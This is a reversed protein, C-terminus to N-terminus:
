SSPPPTVPTMPPPPPMPVMKRKKRLVLGVLFIVIGLVLLATGVTGLATTVSVNANAPTSSSNSQTSVIGVIVTGGNPVSLTFTGSTGTQISVSSLGTLSASTCASLSSCAAAAFVIPVNSTWTMRIPQSGFLSFGTLNFAYPQSETVKQSGQPVIPVYLFVAGLLILVIGAVLIGARM